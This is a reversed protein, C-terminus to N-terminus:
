EYQRVLDLIADGYKAIRREAIGNILRLEEHTTPRKRTIEAIMAANLICFTPLARRTAEAQVWERLAVALGCKPTPRLLK